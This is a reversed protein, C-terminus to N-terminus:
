RDWMWPVGSADGGGASRLWSGVGSPTRSSSQSALRVSGSSASGMMGPQRRPRSTSTEWAPCGFQWTGLLVVSGADFSAAKELEVLLGGGEEGRM